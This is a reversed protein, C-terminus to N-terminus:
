PNLVSCADFYCGWLALPLCFVHEQSCVQGWVAIAVATDKDKDQSPESQYIPLERWTVTQRSVKQVHSKPM